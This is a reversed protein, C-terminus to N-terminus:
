LKEFYDVKVTFSDVLEDIEKKGSIIERISKQVKDDDLSDKIANKVASYIIKKLENGIFLLFLTFLTAFIYPMM